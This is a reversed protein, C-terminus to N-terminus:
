KMFVIEVRRNLQQGSETDNTALPRNAGHPIIEIQDLSIGHVSLFTGVTRARAESLQMNKEVDSTSDSHGHLQVRGIYPNLKVMNAIRELQAVSGARLSARNADFFIQYTTATTRLLQERNDLGSQLMMLRRHNSAVQVKLADIERQHAIENAEAMDLGIGTLMGAVMGVGAGIAAGPGTNNTQNGIIAGSGAGWSAGLVAGALTKDPGSVPRSCGFFVCFLVVVFCYYIHRIHM